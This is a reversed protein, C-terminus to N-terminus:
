ATWVSGSEHNTIFDDPVDPGWLYLSNDSSPFTAQWPQDVPIYDIDFSYECYSGWPDRVYFFYNSGLVHRGVGWGRAFGARAMQAGGAGVEQINAVDWAAHHFGIGAASIAFAILHHDSGHVGHLFAVPGPHDSLRLGLADTYFGISSDVDPTFFLAHAMRRPRVREVQDRLPAGRVGARVTLDLAEAKASPASRLAPQIEILTGHPDHFWLSGPQSAPPSDLLVVGLQELKARHAPMADAFAGFSIHVLKKAEGRILRAWRHPHAHTYLDLAGDAQRVVLGFAEYFRRAVELDPVALCYHDLSHVGLLARNRVVAEDRFQLSM